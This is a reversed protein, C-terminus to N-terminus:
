DLLLNAHQRAASGEQLWRQGRKKAGDLYRRRTKEDLLILEIARSLQAPANPEILMVEDSSFERSIGGIRTAIVPVGRILAEDIVRPVGEPSSSPVIVVHANRLLQEFRSASDVYGHFALKPQLGLTVAMEEIAARDEGNGVIDLHWNPISDNGAQVLSHFAYLLDALGKGWSLRGVYLLRASDTQPSEVGDYTEVAMNGIPVTEVVTPNLTRALDALERGRALVIDAHRMPWEYSKRFRRAWLRGRRDRLENTIMQYHGALYVVLRCAFPRVIPLIPFMPSPLFWLVCPRSLMIASAQCWARLLSAPNVSYPVIRLNQHSVEARLGFDKRQYMLRVFWTVRKFSNCLEHIYDRLPRKTVLVGNGQRQVVTGDFIV